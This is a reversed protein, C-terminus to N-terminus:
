SDGDAEQLLEVLVGHTSKPHFFIIRGEPGDQPSPSTPVFGKGILNQADADIDDSRLCVHHIGEGRKRLYKGVGSDPTTPELLEIRGGPMAFCAMRIEQEPVDTVEDPGRGLLAEYTKMAENLDSVVIAIHHIGTIM